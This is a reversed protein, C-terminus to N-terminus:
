FTGRVAAACGTPGCSMRATTSDPGDRLVLTLVLGAAALAAGAIWLVDGALALSQIRDYDERLSSPCSQRSPCEAGLAGDELLAVGGLVLGTALLVGGAGLVIPGIPSIAGESPTPVPAVAPSPTAPPPLVAIRARAQAPLDGIGPLDAPAERLFREYSARAEAGRGARDQALAINYLVLPATHRGAEVLLAHSRGYGAAAEDYRGAAFAAEAAEFHGRAERIRVDEEPEQAHAALPSLAVLLWALM